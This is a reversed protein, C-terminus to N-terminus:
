KADDTLENGLDYAVLAGVNSPHKGYIGSKMDRMVEPCLQYIGSPIPRVNGCRCAIADIEPMTIQHEELFDLIANKRFDYQDWITKFDRLEAASHKVSENVVMHDSDYLGIKTSTSGPNIILIRKINLM